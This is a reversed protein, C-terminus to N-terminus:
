QTYPKIDKRLVILRTRNGDVGLHLGDRRWQIQAWKKAADEASDVVDIEGIHGPMFFQPQTRGIYVRLRVSKGDM